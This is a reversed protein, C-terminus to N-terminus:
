DRLRNEMPREALDPRRLRVANHDSLAVLSHQKFIAQLDDDSLKQENDRLWRKAQPELWLTVSEIWIADYRLWEADPNLDIEAHDFGAAPALTSYGGLFGSERVYGWREPAKVCSATAGAVAVVGLGLAIQAIRRQRSGM